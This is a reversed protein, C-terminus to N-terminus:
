LSKKLSYKKKLVSSLFLLLGGGIFAFLIICIACQLFFTDPLIRIIQDTDWDFIWYDNKFFIKHFLVFTKDWNIACALGVFIPLIFTTMGSAFLYSYNQKKHKYIIIRILALLSIIGAYFFVNFIDKVERFHQLGEASAAVSPFHLEGQYFPSCYDILANYNELIIERSFGSYSPINLFDIDFYYLPRFAITLFLGLSIFFITFLIGIGLDTLQFKKKM